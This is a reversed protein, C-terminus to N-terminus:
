NLHLAEMIRDLKENIIKFDKNSTKNNDKSYCNSCYVPKSSTPKFPVECKEGCASCTVKTMELEPKNRGNSRKGKGSDRRKSYDEYTEDDKPTGKSYRDKPARGRPKGGSREYKAM